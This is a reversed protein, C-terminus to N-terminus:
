SYHSKLEIKIEFQVAPFFILFTDTLQMNIVGYKIQCLYIVDYM